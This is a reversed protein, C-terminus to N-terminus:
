RFWAKRTTWQKQHREKGIYALMDKAYELDPSFELATLLHREAEGLRGLTHYIRAANFHAHSDAPALSLVRKAHALAIEPLKGKRLNIGFEAFMYKHEPVIGEEVEAIDQLGKLAAPVDDGRRIKLLLAGFHARLHSEVEAREAAHQEPTKSPPADDQPRPPPAPFPSRRLPAALISPEPTFSARFISPEVVMGAGQPHFAGDLAQVSYGADGNDWVFWYQKHKGPGHGAQAGKTLSSHVGMFVGTNM